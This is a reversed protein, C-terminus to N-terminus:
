GTVSHSLREQVFKHAELALDMSNQWPDRWIALTNSLVPDVIASSFSEFTITGDYGIGHLAAFFEDFNVTGRGLYGRHSEGVHVYGLRSGCRRVPEAFDAEEINMHYTDLHVFVNREGVEDLFAMTQEATNLFNSEYRNVAELGLSIDSAAAKVALRRVASVANERGKASLPNSYKHLAGYLIGGLYKAGVDRAVALADNLHQEGRAVTASDESSVDTDVSLGLSCAAAIGAEDLVRRTAEVNITAPNLVPIEILDYGCEASRTVADQCESESWGGVWVLAHVGMQNRNTGTNEKDQQM